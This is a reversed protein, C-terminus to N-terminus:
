VFFYFNNLVVHIYHLTMILPVVHMDYMCTMYKTAINLKFESLHVSLCIYGTVYGGQRVICVLMTCIFTGGIERFLWLHKIHYKYTNLINIDKM